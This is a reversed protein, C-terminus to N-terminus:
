DVTQIVSLIANEIGWRTRTSGSFGERGNNARHIWRGVAVQFSPLKGLTYDIGGGLNLAVLVSTRVISEAFFLAWISFARM